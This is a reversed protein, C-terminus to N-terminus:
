GRRLPSVSNLPSTTSANHQSPRKQTDIFRGEFKGLDTARRYLESKAEKPLARWLNVARESGAVFNLYVHGGQYPTFSDFVCVEFDFGREKIRAVAAIEGQRKLEDDANPWWTGISIAYLQTDLSTVSGYYPGRSNCSALLLAAGILFLNRMKRRGIAM